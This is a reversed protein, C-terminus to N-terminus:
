PTGNLSRVVRMKGSKVMEIDERECMTEVLSNFDQAKMHMARLLERRPLEGNNKRLVKLLKIHDRQFRDGFAGDSILMKVSRISPGVLKNAAFYVDDPQIQDRGHLVAHIMAMKPLYLPTRAVM